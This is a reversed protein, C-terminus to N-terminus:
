GRLPFHCLGSYRSGLPPLPTQQRRWAAGPRMRGPRGEEHGSAEAHRATAPRRILSGAQAIAKEKTQTGGTLRLDTRARENTDLPAVAGTHRVEAPRELRTRPWRLPREQASGSPIARWTSGRSLSGPQPTCHPPDIRFMAHMEKNCAMIVRWLDCTPAVLRGNLGFDV